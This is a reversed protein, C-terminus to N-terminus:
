NVLCYAYAPTFSPYMINQKDNTHPLGISHGIEHTMITEISQLDYLQFSGDCSYDGLSVEVIGKGLHAHGLVGEGIDRVVWTVWVNADEKQKIVEFEIRIDRDNSFRTNLVKGEWFEFTNKLTDVHNLPLGKPQDNIFIKYYIVYVDDIVQYKPDPFKISSINMKDDYNWKNVNRLFKTIVDESPNPDEIYRTEKSINNMIKRVYNKFQFLENDLEEQSKHNMNENNIFKNEKLWNINKFFEENSLKEQSWENLNNRIVSLMKLENSDEFVVSKPVKVINKEILYELSNLFTDDNIKTITWWNVTTKMWKPISKEELNKLGNPKETPVHPYRNLFDSVFKKYNKIIETNPKEKTAKELYKLSEKYEGLSGFAVGMGTLAVGDNPNKQLVKFFEELAKPYDEISISVLGKMKMTSMNNPDAELIEDYLHLAQKYEGKVFHEKAQKFMSESDKESQAFGEETTLFSTFLIITTIYISIRWKQKM